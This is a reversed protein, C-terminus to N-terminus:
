LVLAERFSSSSRVQDYSAKGKARINRYISVGTVISSRAADRSTASNGVNATCHFGLAYVPSVFITMVTQDLCASLSTDANEVSIEDRFRVEDVM